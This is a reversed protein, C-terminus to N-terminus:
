RCNRDIAAIFLYIDIKTYCSASWLYLGGPVSMNMFLSWWTCEYEYIVVLYVWIWLYRGVTVSMNMFLSWWTCEYEYIVVVLYVWIWFYRGGPVSMNMFLSWWTCEYESLKFVLYNLLRQSCILCVAYVPYAFRSYIGIYSHFM